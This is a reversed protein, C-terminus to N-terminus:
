KKEKDELKKLRDLVSTQFEAQRKNARKIQRLAIISTLVFFVSSLVFFAASQPYLGINLTYGGASLCAGGFLSCSMGIGVSAVDKEDGTLKKLSIM